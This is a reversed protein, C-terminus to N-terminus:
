MCITVSQQVARHTNDGSKHRIVDASYSAAVPTCAELGGTREGQDVGTIVQSVGRWCHFGCFLHGVFHNPPFALSWSSLGSAQEGTSLLPGPKRQHSWVVCCMLPM